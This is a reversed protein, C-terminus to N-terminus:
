FTVTVVVTDSYSGAYLGQGGALEGFVQFTQQSGNQTVNEQHLFECVNPGGWCVGENDNVKLAYSLFHDVTGAYKMRRARATEGAPLNMGDSLSLKAPADAAVCLVTIEASNTRLSNSYTGFALEEVSGIQCFTEVNATVSMNDTDEGQAMVAPAFCIAAFGAVLATIRRM